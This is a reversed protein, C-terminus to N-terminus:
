DTKRRRRMGFLVRVPNWPRVLLHYAAFTVAASGFCVIAAKAWPNWDLPLLIFAIAVVPLHHLIYLPLTAESMYSDAATPRRIRTLRQGLGLLGAVMGWGALGQAAFGIPTAGWAIRLTAAAFGVALLGPWQRGIAAEVAPRRAIAAGGLFYVTFIALNAEDGYLNPFDGFIPRLTAELAMLPLAPLWAWAAATESARGGPRGIRVLVPALLLCFVLLYFLFWLHSWSFQNIRTFFRYYFTWYDLDFGPEPHLGTSTINRGSMRELYKIPPAFLILGIFFPPVLRVAREGLFTRVSRSGLASVAAWGAIFFFLPMRWIHLFVTIVDFAGLEVANKIHYVPDHDFVKGTHYPFQILSAVIRLLDLEPRRRPRDPPAPEVTPPTM